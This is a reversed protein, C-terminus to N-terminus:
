RISGTYIDDLQDESVPIGVLSGSGKLGAYDGSGSVVTWSGTSGTSGFRAKLRLTFGSDGGACTFVKTGNFVGGWPTGTAFVDGNVVTGSECGPITAEFPSEETLFSTHAVIQVPLGIPVAVAPSAMGATLAFAGATLAALASTRRM